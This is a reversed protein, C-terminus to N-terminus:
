RNYKRPGATSSGAPVRPIDGKAVFHALPHTAKHYEKGIATITRTRTTRGISTTRVASTIRPVTILAEITSTARATEIWRNTSVSRITEM